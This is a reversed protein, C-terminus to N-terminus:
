RIFGVNERMYDFDRDGSEAQIEDETWHCKHDCKEEVESGNGDTGMIGGDVCGMRDCHNCDDSEPADYYGPPTKVSEM